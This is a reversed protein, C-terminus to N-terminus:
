DSDDSEFAKVYAIEDWDIEHFHKLQSKLKEYEVIEGKLRDSFAAFYPSFDDDVKNHEDENKTAISASLKRTKIVTGGCFVLNYVTLIIVVSVLTRLFHVKM